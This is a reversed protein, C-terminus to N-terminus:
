DVTQVILGSVQRLEDVVVKPTSEIVVKGFIEQRMKKTKLRSQLLNEKAENVTDGQGCFDEEVGQAFFFNGDPVILVTM